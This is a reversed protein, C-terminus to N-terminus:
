KKRIKGANAILLFAALWVLPLLPSTYKWIGFLMFVVAVPIIILVSYFLQSWLTKTLNQVNSQRAEDWKRLTSNAGTKEDRPVAIYVTTTAGRRYSGKPVYLANSQPNELAVPNFGEQRLANVVRVYSEPNAKYVVVLNM